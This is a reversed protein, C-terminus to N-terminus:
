GSGALTESGKSRRGTLAPVTRLGRVPVPSRKWTRPSFPTTLSVSVRSDQLPPHAPISVCARVAMVVSLTPEWCLQILDPAFRGILSLRGTHRTFGLRMPATPFEGYFGRPDGQMRWAQQRDGRWAVCGV